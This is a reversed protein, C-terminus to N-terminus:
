SVMMNPNHHGLYLKKISQNSPNGSELVFQFNHCKEPPSPPVIPLKLSDDWSFRKNLFSVMRVMRVVVVVMVVLFVVM